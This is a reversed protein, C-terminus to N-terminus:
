SGLELAVSTASSRDQNAQVVGQEIRRPHDLRGDDSREVGDVQCSGLENRRGKGRHHGVIPAHRIRGCREAKWDEGRPLM